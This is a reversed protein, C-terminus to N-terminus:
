SKGWSISDAFLWRRKVTFVLRPLIFEVRIDSWYAWWTKERFYFIVNMDTTMNFFYFKYLQTKCTKICGCFHEYKVKLFCFTWKFSVLVMLQRLDPPAHLAVLMLFIFNRNTDCVLKLTSQFLTRLSSKQNLAFRNQQCRCTENDFEIAAYRQAHGCCLSTNITKINLRRNIAFM